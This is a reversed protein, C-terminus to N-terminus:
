GIPRADPALVVAPWWSGARPELVAVLEGAADLAARPGPGASGEVPRGTRVRACADESLTVTELSAVLTRAPAVVPEGAALQRELEDLTLADDVSLPGSSQRRLASLHGVTGLREALDSALVRVYTGTSCAVTFDWENEGAGRRVDFREVRIARPAREVEQGERALAHLRRGGVRVASVMPPVQWQEGTLTAAAARVAELTVAPVPQRAIVQGTADLSDTAEGLRLSGDYVKRTAQAFRLLRTAPGVGVVLLGTAMPDLTGAHGVRREHLLRRVIAVVDHSTHGSPKDLLLAGSSM